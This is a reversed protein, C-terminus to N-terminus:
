KNRNNKWKEYKDLFSKKVIDRSISNDSGFVSYNAFNQCNNSMVTYPEKEIYTARKIISDIDEDEPKKLIGITDFKNDKMYEHITRVYVYGDEEKNVIYDVNNEDAGYYFGYHYLHFLGASKGVNLMPRIVIDGQEFELENLVTTTKSLKKPLQNVFSLGGKLRISIATKELAIMDKYFQNHKGIFIETLFNM